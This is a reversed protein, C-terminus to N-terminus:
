DSASQAEDLFEMLHMVRADVGAERVAAEYQMQCGPNATVIVDPRHKRFEAAKRARLQASMEPQVLSYVGAAGCCMDAGATEVLACGEVAGLLARPQERIRQAHALHCPDQYTVRADLRGARTGGLAVLYESVDKVRESFAKARAAYRRDGALVDGYEKLAAGCGASNVIVPTDTGDDFADVTHRARERAFALDGDHASLAGCCGQGAPATMSVGSRALVRATAAHVGGFLEGMICGIFLRAEARPQGAPQPLV